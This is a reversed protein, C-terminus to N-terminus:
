IRTDCLQLNAIPLDYSSLYAAIGAQVPRRQPTNPDRAAREPATATHPWTGDHESINCAHLSKRGRNHQNRDQEAHQKHNGEVQEAQHM